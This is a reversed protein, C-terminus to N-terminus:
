VWSIRRRELFLPLLLMLVMLLNVSLKTMAALMAMRWIQPKCKMRM